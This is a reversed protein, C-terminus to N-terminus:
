RAQPGHSAPQRSVRLVSGDATEVVTELVVFEALEALSYYYPYEQGAFDILYSDLFEPAVTEFFCERAAVGAFGACATRAPANKVSAGVYWAIMAQMNSFVPRPGDLNPWNKLYALLESDSWVSRSLGRGQDRWEAFDHGYQRAPQVLMAVIMGATLYKTGRPAGPEAGCRMAEDAILAVVAWLPLFAPSLLRFNIPDHAVLSSTVLTFSCYVAAFAACPIVVARANTLGAAIAAARPLLAWAGLGALTLAIALKAPLGFEDGGPLLHAQAMALMRVANELLSYFAPDRAGLLTGTLHLNRLLWLGFVGATVGVFVALDRVKARTSRGAVFPITLAGVAILTVGSYRTFVAAIALLGAAVLARPEGRRLYRALAALFLVSLLIFPPESWAMGFVDHLSRSFLAYLPATVAVVAHIRRGGGLLFCTGAAYISAALLAANLYRVSVTPNAGSIRELLGLVIPYLPPQSAPGSTTLMPGIAGPEALRRARGIYNVSDPSIGIGHVATEALVSVFGVAAIAAFYVRWRVARRVPNVDAMM